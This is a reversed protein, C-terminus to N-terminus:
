ALERLSAEFDQPGPDAVAAALAKRAAPELRRLHKLQRQVESPDVPGPRLSLGHEVGSQLDDSGSSPPVPVQM